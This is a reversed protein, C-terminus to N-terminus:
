RNQLVEPDPKFIRSHRAASRFGANKVTNREPPPPPKRRRWDEYQWVLNLWFSPNRPDNSYVLASKKNVGRCGKTDLTITITGEGGPPIDRDFRASCGWGVKVNEIVLTDNGSNGVKFEHEYVNGM